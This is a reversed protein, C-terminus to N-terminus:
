IFDKNEESCRREEVSPLKDATDFDGSFPGSWIEDFLDMTNYSRIFDYGFNQSNVVFITDNSLKSM